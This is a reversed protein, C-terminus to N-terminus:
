TISLPFCSFDMASATPTAVCDGLSQVDAVTYTQRVPFWVSVVSMNLVINHHRGHQIDASM